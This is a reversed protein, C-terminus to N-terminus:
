PFPKWPRLFQEPYLKKWLIDPYEGHTKKFYERNKDDREKRKTQDLKNQSSSDKHQFAASNTYVTTWGRNRMRLQWDYDDYGGLGYNEDIPWILDKSAEKRWVFFSGHSWLEKGKDWVADGLNFPADYEVMKFHLSGANKLRSFVEQTTKIWNPSIRIDNNVVAVLDGKALKLGQNVAKPYGLNVKNRIYIDCNPLLQDSGITSANDVIILECDNWGISNHLSQLTKGTLDYLEDNVVWAPIIVSIKSM